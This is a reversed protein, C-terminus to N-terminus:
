MHPAQLKWSMRVVLTFDFISFVWLGKLNHLLLSSVPCLLTGVVPSVSLLSCSAAGWGVGLFAPVSGSFRLHSKCHAQSETHNGQVTVFAMLLWYFVLECLNTLKAELAKAVNEHYVDYFFGRIVM